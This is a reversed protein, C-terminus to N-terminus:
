EWERVYSVGSRTLVNEIVAGSEGGEWWRTKLSNEVAVEQGRYTAVVAYESDKPHICKVADASLVVSSTYGSGKELYRLVTRCHFLQPGRDDDHPELLMYFDLVLEDFLDESRIDFTATLTLKSNIRMMGELEADRLKIQSPKAAASATGAMLGMVVALMLARKMVVTRQM